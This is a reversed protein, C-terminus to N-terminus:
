TLDIQTGLIETAVVGDQFVLRTADTSGIFLGQVDSLSPYRSDTATAGDGIPLAVANATGDIAWNIFQDGYTFLDRGDVIYDNTDFVGTGGLPGTANDFRKLSLQPAERAVAPMWDYMQQMFSAYSARQKSNYTKPRAITFGVLFGPEMFFKKAKRGTWQKEISWSLASRPTGNTPDITNSPFTWASNRAVLEIGNDRSQPVKIGFSALYDRFNMKSMGQGRLIQWQLYKAELEAVDIDVNDDSVNGVGTLIGTSTPLDTADTLSDMWSKGRIQAVHNDGQLHNFSNVDLDDRFDQDVILNMARGLYNYGEGGVSYLQLSTNNDNTMLADPSTVMAEIDTQVTNTGVASGGADPGTGTLQRLPVYYVYHELHWGVHPSKVPSTYARAKIQIDTLTEGALVPQISVPQITFPLHRVNFTHSPNRPVRSVNAQRTTATPLGQPLVGANWANSSM